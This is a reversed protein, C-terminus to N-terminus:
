DQAPNDYFPKGQETNFFYNNGIINKIYLM